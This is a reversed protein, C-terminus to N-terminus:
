MEVDTDSGDTQSLVPAVLSKNVVLQVTHAFCGMHKIKLKATTAIMNAANDTTACVIECKNEDPFYVNLVEEKIIAAITDACHNPGSQVLRLVM